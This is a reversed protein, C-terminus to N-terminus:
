SFSDKKTNFWLIIKYVVQVMNEITYNEIKSLSKKGMEERLEQNNLIENIKDALIDPADVPIIYGNEGNEILEVGAVCKDTTIIPLGYSMAENIVLGWIDERTPLVFIDAAYYYKKLEKKSLFDIFHVNKLGLSDKIYYYEQPPKGGILYIGVKQDINQCANLLVDYGKRYIFQGTSIIIKEEQIGIMKKYQKKEINNYVIDKKMVSTFPYVFINERDAGYYELYNTTHDGTSLYIAAKSIFFKKMRYKYKREKRILGGDCMLIFPIKKYNLYLISLMATPSSYGNLVILDFKEKGLVNFIEFSISSEDGIKIIKLFIEKYSRHESQNIWKENRNSATEREYVVTLDCLRGLENFFDVKYPAPLNTLFMVKM